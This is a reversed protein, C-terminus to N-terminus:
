VKEDKKEGEEAPKEEQPEPAPAAAQPAAAQPAAAALEERVEDLNAGCFQCFKAYRPNVVLCNECRRFLLTGCLICFNAKPHHKDFECGPNPCSKSLLESESM